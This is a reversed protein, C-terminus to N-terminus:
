FRNRKQFQAEHEPIPAAKAKAEISNSIWQRVYGSFRPMLENADFTIKGQALELDMKDNFSDILKNKDDIQKHNQMWLIDLENQKEQKLIDIARASNVKEKIKSKNEIERKSEREIESPPNNPNNEQTTKTPQQTTKKIHKKANDNGKPAGGKKGNERAAEAKSMRKKISKIWWKGDPQVDIYEMLKSYEIDSLEIDLDDFLYERNMEIPGSEIYMLDFLERIAYRVLPYKKLRKRTNSIFWDKPYWTYGLQAM